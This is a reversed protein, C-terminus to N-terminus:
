EVVPVSLHMVNIEDDTYNYFFQIPVVQRESVVNEPERTLLSEVTSTDATINHEEALWAQVNAVYESYQATETQEYDNSASAMGQFAGVLGAVLLISLVGSVPRKCRAGGAVFMMVALVLVGALVLAVFFLVLPAASTEVHSVYVGPNNM